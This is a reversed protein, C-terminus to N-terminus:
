NRVFTIQFRPRWILLYFRAFIWVRATTQKSDTTNKFYIGLLSVVALQTLDALKLCSMSSVRREKM